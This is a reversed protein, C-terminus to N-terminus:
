ARDKSSLYNYDKIVDRLFYEADIIEQIGILEQVKTSTKLLLANSEHPLKDFRNLVEKILSIDRDSLEIVRPYKVVHHVETEVFITDHIMTRRQTRVVTTGALMDGLRQTKESLAITLVAVLGSSIMTDVIRFAWRILYQGIHPQNGDLSIVRIGKAKKGISQGNLFIECLLQYLLIPLFMLIFLLGDEYKALQLFLAMIIWYASYILVDILYAVLRDGLGALEYEIDINQTTQITINQM